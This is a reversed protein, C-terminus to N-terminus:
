PSACEVVGPTAKSPRWRTSGALSFRQGLPLRLATRNSSSTPRFSDTVLLFYGCSLVARTSAALRFAECAAHWHDGSYLDPRANSSCGGNSDTGGSASGNAPRCTSRGLRLEQHVPLRKRQSCAVILAAGHRVGRRVGSAPAPREGPILAELRCLRIRRPQPHERRQGCARSRVQDACRADLAAAVARTIDEVFAPNEYARM